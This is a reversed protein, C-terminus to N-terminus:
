EDIDFDDIRWGAAESVVLYAFYDSYRSGDASDEYTETAEVIVTGDDQTEVSTVTTEYDSTSAALETAQVEFTECTNLDYDERFGETTAGIMLDCDISQWARDYEHVAAAAAREDDTDGVVGGGTVARLAMPVFIVALVILIVLLAAGAVLWIWWLSRRPPPQTAVAPYGGPAPQGFGLATAPDAEPSPSGVSPSPEPQATPDATAADRAHTHETWQAGDWWRVAGQGDDYWGAPTSM